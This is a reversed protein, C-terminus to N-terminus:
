GIECYLQLVHKQKTLQKDFCSVDGLCIVDCDYLESIGLSRMLRRKVSQPNLDNVKEM